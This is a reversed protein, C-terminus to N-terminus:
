RRGCAARVLYGVLVGVIILLLPAWRSDLLALLGLGPVALTLGSVISLVLVALSWRCGVTEGHAGCIRRLCRMGWLFGGVIVTPVAWWGISVLYGQPFSGTWWGLIVIATVAAAAVREGRLTAQVLLLKCSEWVVAAVADDEDTRSSAADGMPACRRVADWCADRLVRGEAECGPPEAAAYELLRLYAEGLALLRGRHTDAMEEVRLTETM